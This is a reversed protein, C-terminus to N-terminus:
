YLYRITLAVAQLSINWKRIKHKVATGPLWWLTIWVASSRSRSLYMFSSWCLLIGSGKGTKSQTFMETCCILVCQKWHWKRYMDRDRERATHVLWLIHHFHTLSRHISFDSAEKRVTSPAPYTSKRFVMRNSTCLIATMETWVKKLVLQRM